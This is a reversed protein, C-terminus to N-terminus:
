HLLAYVLANVNIQRAQKIEAGGCCCCGPANHVDNLGEPSYLLALRGNLILGQLKVSKTHTAIETIPYVTSFVEHNMELPTFEVDPLAAPIERQFARNWQADSCGPSALIFGGNELYRRLHTREAESLKFDGEGTFVCLPTQFVSPEALPIRIFKPAIEIGTEKAADSLFTEAFCVSTQNKGYTLNGCEVLNPDKAHALLSSALLALLYKM